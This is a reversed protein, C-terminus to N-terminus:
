MNNKLRYLDSLVVITGWHTHTFGHQELLIYTLDRSKTDPPFGAQENYWHSVFCGGNMQHLAFTSACVLLHTRPDIEPLFSGLWLYACFVHHMMNVGRAVLGATGYGYKHENVVFSLLGLMFIKFYYQM